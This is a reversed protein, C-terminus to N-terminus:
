FLIADESGEKPQNIKNELRNIRIGCQNIRSELIEVISLLNTISKGHFFICAGFIVMVMAILIPTIEIEM